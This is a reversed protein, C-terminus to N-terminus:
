DLVNRGSVKRSRSGLCASEAAARRASRLVLLVHVQELAQGKEMTALARRSASIRQRHRAQAEARRLGFNTGHATEQEEAVGFRDGRGRAAVIVAREDLPAPAVGLPDGGEDGLRAHDRIEHNEGGGLARAFRRRDHEVGPRPPRLARRAPARRHSARRRDVRDNAGKGIRRRADHQDAVIGPEGSIALAQSAPPSLRSMARM